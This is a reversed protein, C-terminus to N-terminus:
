NLLFFLHIPSHDTTLYIPPEKLFSRNLIMNDSNLSPTVSNMGSITLEMPRSNLPSILVPTDDLLPNEETSQVSPEQPVQIDPVAETSQVPPEQTNWGYISSRLSAMTTAASFVTLRLGLERDNLSLSGKLLTLYTQEDLIIYDRDEDM